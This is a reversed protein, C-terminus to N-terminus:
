QCRGFICSASKQMKGFWNSLSSVQQDTSPAAPVTANGTTNVNINGNSGLASYGINAGVNGSTDMGVHPKIQGVGGPLTVGKTLNTLSDNVSAM